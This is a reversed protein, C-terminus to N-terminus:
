ERTFKADRRRRPVSAFDVVRVVRSPRAVRSIHARLVVVM